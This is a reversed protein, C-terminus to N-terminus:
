ADAEDMWAAYEEIEAILGATAPDKEDIRFWGLVGGAWWSGDYAVFAPEQEVSRVVRVLRAEQMDRMQAHSLWLVRTSTRM